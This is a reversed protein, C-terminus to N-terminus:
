QSTTEPTAGFDRYNAMLREAVAPWSFKLARQRARNSMDKRRRDDALLAIVAEGFGTSDGRKVLTCFSPDVYDRTGSLDTTVIPLGVAMAELVALNSTGSKLPLMMLDAGHLEHMYEAIPVGSRFVVNKCGAFNRRNGEMSIVHFEIDNRGSLDDMVKRATEFDRLWNGVMLCIKRENDARAESPRFFETDVALPQFVIRDDPLYKSLLERLANSTILAVDLRRIHDCKKFFHYFYDPPQHFTTIVRNNGKLYPMWKSNTDGNFFHILNSSRRTAKWVAYEAQLSNLRYGEMGAAAQIASNVMYMLRSPYNAAAPRVIQDYHIYNIMNDPSTQANHHAFHELVAILRM